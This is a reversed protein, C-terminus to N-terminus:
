VDGEGPPATLAEEVEVREVWGHGDEGGEVRQGAQSDCDDIVELRDLPVAGHAEHGERDLESDVLGLPDAHPGDVECLEANRGVKRRHALCVVGEDKEAEDDGLDIELEGGEQLVRDCVVDLVLGRGLGEEDEADEGSCEGAAVVGKLDELPHM